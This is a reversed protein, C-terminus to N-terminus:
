KRRSEGNLFIINCMEKIRDYNLNGYREEFDSREEFNNTFHTKVKHMQFLDYREYIFRARVDERAGMNISEPNERGLDNGCIHNLRYGVFSQVSVRKIDSLAIEGIEKQNYYSAMSVLSVIGFPEIDTMLKQMVRMLQTKGTGMPGALCIGKQLSGEFTPSRNIYAVIQEVARRNHDDIIFEKGLVADAVDLFSKPRNALGQEGAQPKQM